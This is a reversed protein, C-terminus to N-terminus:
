SSPATGGADTDTNRNVTLLGTAKDRLASLQGIVRNFDTNWNGLATSLRVGSTSNNVAPLQGSIGLVQRNVGNMSEIANSTATIISTLAADDYGYRSM